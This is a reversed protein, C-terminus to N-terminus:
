DSRGGPLGISGPTCENDSVLIVRNVLAVLDFLDQFLCSANRPHSPRHYLNVDLPLDESPAM